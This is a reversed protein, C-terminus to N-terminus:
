ALSILFKITSELCQFDPRKMGCLEICIESFEVPNEDDQFPMSVQFIYLFRYPLRKLSISGFHSKPQTSACVGAIFRTGCCILEQEGTLIRFGSKTREFAYSGFPYVQM